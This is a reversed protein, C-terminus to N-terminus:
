RTCRDISFLLSERRQIIDLVGDGRLIWEDYEIQSEVSGQDAALKLYDIPVTIHFVYQFRQILLDFSNVM